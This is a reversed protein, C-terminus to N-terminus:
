KEKKSEELVRKRNEYYLIADEPIRRKLKSQQIFYEISDASGEGTVKQAETRNCVFIDSFMGPEKQMLEWIWDKDM